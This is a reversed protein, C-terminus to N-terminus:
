QSKWKKEKKIEHTIKIIKKKRRSKVKICKKKEIYSLDKAEYRWLSKEGNYNTKALCLKLVQKM